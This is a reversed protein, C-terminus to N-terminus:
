REPRSCWCVRILLPFYLLQPGSCGVHPRIGPPWASEVRESRSGLVWTERSVFMRHHRAAPPRHRAPRLPRPSPPASNRPQCRLVNRTCRKGFPAARGWSGDIILALARARSAAAARAWAAAAEGAGRAVRWTQAAIPSSAFSPVASCAGRRVSWAARSAARRSRLM